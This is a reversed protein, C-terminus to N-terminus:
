RSPKVAAPFEGPPESVPPLSFPEHVTTVPPAITGVGRPEPAAAFRRPAARPPEPTAMVEPAATKGFSPLASRLMSISDLVPRRALIPTERLPSSVIPRQPPVPPQPAVAPLETKPRPKVTPMAMPIPVDTASVPSVPPRHAATPRAIPPEVTQGAIGNAGRDSRYGALHYEWLAQQASDRVERSGDLEAAAELALGALPYVLKFQGIAEAAEARVAASSDRQLSAILGSIVDPHSRPDTERLEAIAARRAKEDPDARVTDLLRKVQAESKPKKGFAGLAGAQAAGAALVLLALLVARIGIM